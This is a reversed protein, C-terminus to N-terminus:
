DPRRLLNNTTSEGSEPPPDGHGAGRHPPDLEESMAAVADIMEGPTAEVLKMGHPLLLKSLAELKAPDSMAELTLQMVAVDTERRLQEDTMKRADVVEEAQEISHHLKLLNIMLHGASAPVEERGCLQMIVWHLQSAYGSTGGFEGYVDSLISKVRGLETAAEGPTLDSLQKSIAIARQGLAKEAKETNIGTMCSRCIVSEQYNAFSEVPKEKLCHECLLIAM